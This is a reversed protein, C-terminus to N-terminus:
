FGFGPIPFPVPSSTHGGNTRWQSASQQITPVRIQPPPHSREFGFIIDVPSMQDLGEFFRM